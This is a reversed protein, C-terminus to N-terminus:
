KVLKCQCYSEGTCKEPIRTMGMIKFLRELINDWMKPDKDVKFAKLKQDNKNEYLVIGHDYAALNLYIQIQIMHEEKPALKLLDFNRTNISKLELIVEQYEPHSIIFDLRGSINPTELKLPVERRKVIGLKEFYKNIRYELYNGNDFIRQLNGTIAQAPLLGNYSLFVYRDCPNSIMSPYFVVKKGFVKDSSLLNDMSKLLWRDQNSLRPRKAGIQRIGAM